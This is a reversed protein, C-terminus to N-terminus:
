LHPGEGHVRFRYVCTYEPHGWNSLVRLEVLPYVEQLSDPLTFTQIPEGDQDYTFQGLLTGEEQKESTMGYVAFHRPASDIRGSPSLTRPIHELTVARPRVPSSLQVVVFGHSGRFAWCSGPHVDPQIVARPSQSHYWMPIGFLTLLATKTEYTESCRTNIVSAGSSELAYDALGIGDARYLALARQVVRHVELHKAVNNFLTLIADDTGRNREYALQCPDLCSEVSCTLRKVLVREMSKCLLAIINASLQAVTQTRRGRMYASVCVCFYLGAKPCLSLTLFSGHKLYLVNTWCTSFYNTLVGKLQPACISSPFPGSARLGSTPALGGPQPAAEVEPARAPLPGQPSFDPGQSCSAERLSTRRDAQNTGPIRPREQIRAPSTLPSCDQDPRARPLHDASSRSPVWETLLGGVGRALDGRWGMMANLGEWPQRVNCTCLKREIKDNYDLTGKKIKEWDRRKECFMRSDGKCSAMRKENLCWKLDKSVWLKNNPFIRITKTEVAACECFIIYSTISDTLEHGDGCAKYADIINGFCLDLTRTSRM